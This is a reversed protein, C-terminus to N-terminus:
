GASIGGARAADWIKNLETQLILMAALPFFIGLLLSVTSLDNRPMRVRDQMELMLQPYKYYMFMLYIGCTVFGLVLEMTPNIDERRLANKVDTATVFWWYWGYIGCTLLTFVLVMVPDRKEGIAFLGGVSGAWSQLPASGAGYGAANYPNAAEQWNVRPDVPPVNPRYGGSDDEGGDDGGSGSGGYPQYCEGETACQVSSIHAIFEAGCM